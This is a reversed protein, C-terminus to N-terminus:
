DELVLIITSAPHVILSPPPTKACEGAGLSSSSGASASLFALGFDSGSSAGANM